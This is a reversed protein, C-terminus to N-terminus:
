SPSVVWVGHRERVGLWGGLQGWVGAVGLGGGWVGAAWAQCGRPESWVRRTLSVGRGAAAITAGTATETVVVGTAHGAAATPDAAASQGTAAMHGATGHSAPSEACQGPVPLRCDRLHAREASRGLLLETKQLSFPPHEICRRCQPWSHQTRMDGPSRLQQPSWALTDGCIWEWCSTM